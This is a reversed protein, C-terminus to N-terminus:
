LVAQVLAVLAFPLSLVAALLLAAAPTFRPRPACGGSRDRQRMAGM